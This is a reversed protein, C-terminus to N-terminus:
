IEEVTMVCDACSCEAAPPDFTFRSRCDCDGDCSITYKKGDRKVIVVDDSYGNVTYEFRTAVEEKFSSVQIEQLRVDAEPYEQQMWKVFDDVLPVELDAQSLEFVRKSGSTQEVIMVCDACKCQVHSGLTGQLGCDCPGECYVKYDGQAKSLQETGEQPTSNEVSEVPISCSAMLFCFPLFFIFLKMSGSMQTLVCNVHIM